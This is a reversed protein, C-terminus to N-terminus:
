KWDELDLMSPILEKGMQSTWQSMESERAHPPEFWGEIGVGGLVVLRIIAKLWGPMNEKRLSAQM